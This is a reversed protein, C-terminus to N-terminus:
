QFVVMRRQVLQKSFEDPLQCSRIKRPRELQQVEEPSTQRNVNTGFVEM